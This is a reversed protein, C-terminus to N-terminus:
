LKLNLVLFDRPADKDQRYSEESIKLEELMEKNESIEREIDALDRAKDKEPIQDSILYQYFPTIEGHFPYKARGEVEYGNLIFNRKSPENFPSVTACIYDCDKKKAIEEALVLMLRQFGCGRYSLKGVGARGDNVLVSDFDLYSFDRKVRELYKNEHVKNLQYGNFVKHNDNDDVTRDINVVQHLIVAVCAINRIGDNLSEEIVWVEGNPIAVELEERETKVYLARRYPRSPENLAIIKEKDVHVAQRLIFKGVSGEQKLCQFGIEALSNNQILSMYELIIERDILSNRMLGKGFPKKGFIPRISRYLAYKVHKYFLLYLVFIKEYKLNRTGLNLLTEEQLEISNVFKFLDVFFDNAARNVIEDSKKDFKTILDYLDEYLTLKEIGTYIMTNTRLTNYYEWFGTSLLQNNRPRIEFNNPISRGASLLVVVCIMKYFCVSLDDIRTRQNWIELGDFPLCENLFEALSDQRCINPLSPCKVLGRLVILMKDYKEKETGAHTVYAFMKKVYEFDKYTYIQNISHEMRNLLRDASRIVTFFVHINTQQINEQDQDLFHSIPDNRLDCWTFKSDPVTLRIADYRTSNTEVRKLNETLATIFYDYIEPNANPFDKEAEFDALEIAESLKKM